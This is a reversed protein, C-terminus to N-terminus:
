YKAWHCKNIDIEQFLSEEKNTNVRSILQGYPNILMTNGISHETYKRGTKAKIVIKSGFNCFLAYCKNEIARAKILNETQILELDNPVYKVSANIDEFSWMAINIIFDPKLKKYDNSIKASNLDACIQIAIDGINTKFVKTILGGTLYKKESSWLIQKDYFGLIGGDLGIFCTSNFLENNIKRIFSGPIINVKYRIALNSLKEFIESKESFAQDYNSFLPGTLAYEPFIVLNPRLYLNNKILKEFKKLNSIINLYNIKYQFAIVRLKKMIVITSKINIYVLLLILFKYVKAEKKIGFNEAVVFSQCM